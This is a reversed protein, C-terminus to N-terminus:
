CVWSPNRTEATSIDIYPMTDGLCEAVTVMKLNRNRAWEIIFPVMSATAESTDHQLINHSIDSSAMNYREQQGTPPVGASDGSDIDWLAVTSIGATRLAEITDANNSGYPPRLYTPIAGIIKKLANALLNVENVVAPAPLTALDAHSWTHSAIQHGAAFIGQLIEAREYICGFNLGNVFFTVHGGAATFADAIGQTYMTPGDDFTIAVTGPVSCQTVVRISDAPSQAETFTFCGFLVIALFNFSKM